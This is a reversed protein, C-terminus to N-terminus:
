TLKRFQEHVNQSMIQKWINDSFTLLIVDFNGFQLILRLQHCKPCHFVLYLSYIKGLNIGLTATLSYGINVNRLITQRLYITALSYGPYPKACM